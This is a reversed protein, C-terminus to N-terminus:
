EAAAPESMAAGIIPVRRWSAVGIAPEIAGGTSLYRNSAQSFTGLMARALGPRRGVLSVAGRWAWAGKAQQLGSACRVYPCRHPLLLRSPLVLLSCLVNECQRTENM